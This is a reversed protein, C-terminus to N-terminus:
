SVNVFALQLLKKDDILKLLSRFRNEMKRLDIFVPNKLIFEAYFTKRRNDFNQFRKSRKQKKTKHYFTPAM